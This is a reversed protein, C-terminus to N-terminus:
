VRDNCSHVVADGVGEGSPAVCFRPADLAAQPSHACIAMLQMKDTLVYTVSTPARHCIAALSSSGTVCRLGFDVMQSIVQVHGQPQMFGGM